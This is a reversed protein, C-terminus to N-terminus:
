KLNYEASDKHHSLWAQDLLIANAIYAEGLKHAVYPIIVFSQGIGKTKDSFRVSLDATDPAM